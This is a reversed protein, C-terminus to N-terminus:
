KTLEKEIKFAAWGLGGLVPLVSYDFPLGTWQELGHALAAGTLFWVTVGLMMFFENDRWRPGRYLSKM